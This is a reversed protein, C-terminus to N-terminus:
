LINRFYPRTNELALRFLRTFSSLECIVSEADGYSAQARMRGICVSMDAIDEHDLFLMLYGTTNEWQKDLAAVASKLAPIDQKEAASQIDALLADTEAARHDLYANFLFVGGLILSLLLVATLFARM